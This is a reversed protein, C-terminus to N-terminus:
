ARMGAYQGYGTPATSGGGKSGGLGKFVSSLGGTPMAMGAIGGLSSLVTGWASQQQQAITNAEENALGGASVTSSAFSNPNWAQALAEEGAVAQQYQTRGIDYGTSEINLRQQAEQGAATQAIRAREAEAAGSTQNINSTGGGLTARQSGLAKLAQNYYGATGGTALTNLDTRQADTYGMQGPGANIIPDFQKKLAGQLDSFNAYAKDYAAIQKDYFAAESAQLKQQTSTPGGCM